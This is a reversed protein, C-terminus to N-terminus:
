KDKKSFGTLTMRVALEMESLKKGSHKSIQDAASIESNSLEMDEDQNEDGLDISDKLSM